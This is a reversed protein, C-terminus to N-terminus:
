EVTEAIRLLEEARHAPELVERDGERDDRDEGAAQGRVVDREVVAPRDRDGPAPQEDAQHARDDGEGHGLDRGDERGGAAEVVPGRLEAARRPAPEGAPEVEDALDRHRGRDAVPERDEQRREQVEPEVVRVRLLPRQERVPDHHQDGDQDVQELDADRRQQVRDGRVPVHGADRDDHQDADDHGVMVLREGIDERVRDVVGAERSVVEAGDHKM